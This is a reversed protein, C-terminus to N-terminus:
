PAPKPEYKGLQILHKDLEDLEKDEDERRKIAADLTDTLVQRAKQIKKLEEKDKSDLGFDSKEIKALFQKTANKLADNANEVAELKKECAERSKDFEDSAKGKSDAAKGITDPVDPVKGKDGLIKLAEAKAKDWLASSM